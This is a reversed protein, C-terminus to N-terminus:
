KTICTYTFKFVSNSFIIIMSIVYLNLEEYDYYQCENSINQSSVSLNLLNQNNEKDMIYSYIFTINIM